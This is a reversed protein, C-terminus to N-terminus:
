GLPPFEQLTVEVECEPFGTMTIIIDGVTPIDVHRSYVRRFPTRYEILETFGTPNSVPPLPEDCRVVLILLGPQAAYPVEISITGPTPGRFAANLVQEKLYSSFHAM